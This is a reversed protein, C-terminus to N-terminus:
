GQHSVVTPWQGILRVKMFSERKSDVRSSIGADKTSPSSPLWNLRAASGKFVTRIAVTANELAPLVVKLQGV